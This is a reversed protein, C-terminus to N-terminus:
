EGKEFRYNKYKKNKNMARSITSNNLGEKKAFETISSYEGYFKEDKYVIIKIKNWGGISERTAKSREHSPNYDCLGISAGKKLYRIITARAMNYKKSLQKTDHLGKKWDKCVKVCLSKLSEEYVKNININSINISLIDLICSSKLENIIKELSTDSFDLYIYNKIGNKIALEKKALDNEIVELLSTRSTEKYHQGGNTEIIMNKSPIYFDYRYKTEKNIRYQYIFSVRAESLFNHMFKEPISIGDSCICPVYKLTYLTNIKQERCVRGCNPCIPKIKKHSSKTYLKAEDEGGQFFKVMEPNTTCIDNFGIKVKLGRCVCCGYKAIDYERKVGKHNCKECKYFYEKTKKNNLNIGTIRLGNVIDGVKYAYIRKKSM